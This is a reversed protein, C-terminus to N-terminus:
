RERVRQLRFTQPVSNAGRSVLEVQLGEGDASLKATVDWPV